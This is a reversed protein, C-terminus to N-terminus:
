PLTVGKSAFWQYVKGSTQVTTGISVGTFSENVTADDLLNGYPQSVSNVAGEGMPVVQAFNVGSAAVASTPWSFAGYGSSDINVTITNNTTDIATILAQQGNLQSMGFAAPVVLRVEQGATFRHVVSLTIVTSTGSSAIKTISRNKPYYRSNANIIMYSGASAVAGFGTQTTDLYKLQFSVGASITGITFDMGSVQLMGTTNKFRVVSSSAVLGTTTGTSVVAPNAQSINTVAVYSGNSVLASDAVFTFGGTLTTVEPDLTAAGSTKPSYFASGSTMLSTGTAKMVNNNAATSGIDTLNYMEFKDYGSPLSIDKIAGASTFSGTLQAHIPTSM